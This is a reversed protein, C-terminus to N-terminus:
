LKSRDGTNDTNYKTGRSVPVSPKCNGAWLEALIQIDLRGPGGDIKILVWKGEVDAADPFLAVMYHM